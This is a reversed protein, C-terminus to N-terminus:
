LKLVDGSKVMYDKEEDRFYIDYLSPNYVITNDFNFQLSEYAKTYEYIEMNTAFWIDDSDTARKCFTIMTLSM